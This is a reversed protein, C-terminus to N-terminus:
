PGTDPFRDTSERGEINDLYAVTVTCIYALQTQFGEDFTENETSYEAWAM